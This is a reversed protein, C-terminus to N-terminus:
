PWSLNSSHFCGRGNHALTLDGLVLMGRVFVPVFLFCFTQYQRSRSLCSKRGDLDAESAAYVDVDNGATGSAVVIEHYHEVVPKCSEGQFM